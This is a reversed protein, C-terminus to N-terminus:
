ICKPPSSTTCYTKQALSVADPGPLKWNSTKKMATQLEDLSIDEWPQCEIDTYKQEERKIWEASHNYERNNELIARWFTETAEKKPPKEVSIQEKGLSRFLKKRNNVFM